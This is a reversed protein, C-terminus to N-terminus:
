QVIILEKISKGIVFPPTIEVFPGKIFKNERKIKNIAKERIVKDKVTLISELYETYKNNIHETTKVPNMAM